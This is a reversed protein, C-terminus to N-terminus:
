QLATNIVICGVSIAYNVTNYTGGSDETLYCICYRANDVMFRNRMQMCGDFYNDSVYIINDADNLTKRYFAKQKKSWFKDQERCPLALQLRINMGERKKANIIEAAITDFGIAGGAIFNIIGKEIMRNIEFDLRDYIYALRNFPLFRHGTFFCTKMSM